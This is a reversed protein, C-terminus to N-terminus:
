PNVTQNQLNYYVGPKRIAEAATRADEQSAVIAAAGRAASPHTRIQIFTFFTGHGSLVYLHM